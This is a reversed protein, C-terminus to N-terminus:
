FCSIKNSLIRLPNWTNELCTATAYDAFFFIGHRLFEFMHVQFIYSKCCCGEKKGLIIGKEQAEAPDICLECSETLQNAATEKGGGKQGVNLAEM